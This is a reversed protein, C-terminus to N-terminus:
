PLAIWIAVSRTLSARNRIHDVYQVFHVNKNLLLREILAPFRNEFKLLDQFLVKGFIIPLSISRLRKTALSLQYAATRAAFCLLPSQTPFDRLRSRHTKLAYCCEAIAVLLEDPLDYLTGMIAPIFLRVTTKTSTQRREVESGQESPFQQDQLSSLYEGNSVLPVLTINM